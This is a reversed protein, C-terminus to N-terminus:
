LNFLIIFQFTMELYIIIVCYNFVIKIEEKFDDYCKNKYKFYRQRNQIM